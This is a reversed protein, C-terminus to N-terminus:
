LWGKRKFWWYPLVASVLMIVLAFPYGFHWDLEPMHQFNMGYVSAIFTPPLFMVAAVSFIKIINNQEINILGLTAELLFSVKGSLFAAYDSLAHTRGTQDKLRFAPAKRGPDILPM